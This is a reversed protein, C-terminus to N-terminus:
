LGNRSSSVPYFGVEIGFQRVDLVVQLRIKDDDSMTRSGSTADSESAAGAAGRRLRKLSESIKKQSELM